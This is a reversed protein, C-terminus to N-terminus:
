LLGRVDDVFFKSFVEIVLKIINVEEGAVEEKYFVRRGM